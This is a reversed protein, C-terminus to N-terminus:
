RCNEPPTAGPLLGLRECHSQFVGIRAEAPGYADDGKAGHNRMRGNQQDKLENLGSNEKRHGAVAQKWLNETLDVRAEPGRM